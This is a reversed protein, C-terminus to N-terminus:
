AGLEGKAGNAADLADHQSRGPRFGYSFDRFDAEYVQSLVATAASQVLKDELVPVGIPRERGDAKPIYV